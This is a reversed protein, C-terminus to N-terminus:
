GRRAHPQANLWAFDLELHRGQIFRTTNKLPSGQHRGLISALVCSLRNALWDQCELNVPQDNALAGCAGYHKGGGCDPVFVWIIQNALSGVLGAITNMGSQRASRVHVVASETFVM